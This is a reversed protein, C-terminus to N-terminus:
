PPPPAPPMNALIYAELDSNRQALAARNTESTALKAADTTITEMITQRATEITGADEVSLYTVSSAKVAKVDANAVGLLDHALDKVQAMFYSLSLSTPIAGLNIGVMMTVYPMGMAVPLSELYSNPVYVTEGTPSVLSLICVGNAVDDVFTEKPISSSDYYLLFPDQGGAAIDRLTRVGSVTYPVNAACLGTFPAKLKIAGSSGVNPLLYITPM